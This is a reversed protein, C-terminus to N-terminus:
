APLVVEAAGSAAVGRPNSVVIDLAVSPRGEFEGIATIKGTCSVTDGPHSSAGMRFPGLKRIRGGLGIWRRLTVEFLFEYGRTNFIIDALGNTRAQDRNHHIPSFMRDVAISMVIRQYSLWLSVPPIPDGVKIDAVLLQRSWDVEIPGAEPVSAVAQKPPRAAPAAETQAIPAPDYRFLTNRNLAVREGTAKFMEMDFTLFVGNGLKTQRPKIDVLKWQGHLRDGPYLPEFYEWESAANVAKAFPTPVEVRVGGPKEPLGEGFSPPQGPTWYAPMAWLPTMSVPATVGRYGHVQAQAGDYHLPCDFCFVELKRRVDNQSVEDVGAFEHTRGIWEELAALPNRADDM